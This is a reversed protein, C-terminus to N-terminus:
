NFIPNHNNLMLRTFGKDDKGLSIKRMGVFLERGQRDYLGGLKLSVVLKYLNPHEPQGCNPM